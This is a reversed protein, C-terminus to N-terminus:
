SNLARRMVLADAGSAYYRRRLGVQEFGAARYLALAAANDAAVELFLAEAPVLTALGAAAEVLARGTGCRRVTPDVALTLIEAEGAVARCLIFGKGEALVAFAGPSALLEALESAGWPHDFALAHLAALAPVDEPGATRMNM